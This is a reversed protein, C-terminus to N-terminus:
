SPCIVLLLLCNNLDPKCHISKSWSTSKSQLDTESKPCRVIEFKRQLAFLNENKRCNGALKQGTLQRIAKCSSRFGELHITKSSSGLPTIAACLQVIIATANIPAWGLHSYNNKTYTPRNIHIDHNMFWSCTLWAHMYTCNSAHIYFVIKWTCSVYFDTSTWNPIRTQTLM